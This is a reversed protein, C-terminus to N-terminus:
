LDRTLGAARTPTYICNGNADAGWLVVPCNGIFGSGFLDVFTASPSASAAQAYQTSTSGDPLRLEAWWQSPLPSPNTWNLVGSADIYCAPASPM